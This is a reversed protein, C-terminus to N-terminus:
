PRRPAVRRSSRRVRPSDGQSECLLNTSGGFERPLVDTNQPTVDTNTLRVNTDSPSVFTETVQAFSDGVIECSEGITGERSLKLVLIDTRGAGLRYSNTFGAFIYGGERIERISCSYEHAHGGYTHQWLINGYSDIKFVWLNRGGPGFSNTVGGVVYGGDHDEIIAACNEWDGIGGYARQWEVEGYHSLKLIWCDYGGAGFTETRGGVIYGGDSTPQISHAYETQEGGYTRQWEINGDSYLKLIWIDALVGYSYTPGVIIYGGDTTLNSAYPFDLDFDTGYTKQWEIEGISTLKLVWVVHTGYDSAMTFGVVIYGGDPTQHIGGYAKDEEGGGYVRQWEILGASDLKVVIVDEVNTTYAWTSGAFIYGGDSTARLSSHGKMEDISPGGYTRAWLRIRKESSQLQHHERDHSQTLQAESPSVIALAVLCELFLHTGRM